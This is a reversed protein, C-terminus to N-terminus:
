IYELTLNGDWRKEVVAVLYPDQKTKPQKEPCWRKTLSKRGLMATCRRGMHIYIIHLLKGKSARDIEERLRKFAKEREGKAM